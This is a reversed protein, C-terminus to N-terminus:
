DEELEKLETKIIDKYNISDHLFYIGKCIEYNGCIFRSVYREAEEQSDFLIIKGNSGGWKIIYGNEIDKIIYQYAKM